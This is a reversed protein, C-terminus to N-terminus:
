LVINSIDKLPEEGEKFEGGNAADNIEIQTKVYAIRLILEIFGAFNIGQYLDLTDSPKTELLPSLSSLLSYFEEMTKCGFGYEKIFHFFHQLLIYFNEPNTYFQPVQRAYAQYIPFLNEYHVSFLSLCDGEDEEKTIFSHDIKKWVECLKDMIKEMAIKYREKEEEQKRKNEKARMHESKLQQERNQLDNEYREKDKKRDAECKIKPHIRISRACLSM